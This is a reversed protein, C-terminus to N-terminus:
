EDSDIKFPLVIEVEKSSVCAIFSEGKYHKVQLFWKHGSECWMPININSSSLVIPTEFYVYNFDCVPCHIKNGWEKPYNKKM